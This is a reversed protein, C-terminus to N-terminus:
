YWLQICLAYGVIPTLVYITTLPLSFAVISEKRLHIFKIIVTVIATLVFVSLAIMMYMGITSVLMSLGIIANEILVAFNMIPWFAVVFLSSWSLDDFSYFEKFHPEDGPNIYSLTLYVTILYLPVLWIILRYAKASLKDFGENKKHTSRITLYVGLGIIVSLAAGENTYQSTTLLYTTLYVIGSTILTYIFTGKLNDKM